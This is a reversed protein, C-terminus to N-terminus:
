EISDDGALRHNLLVTVFDTAFTHSIKLLERFLPHRGFKDSQSAVYHMIIEKCGTRPRTKYLSTVIGLIDQVRKDHLEFNVLTHYLKSMALKELKQFRRMRAFTIMEIHHNLIAAHSELPNNNPRSYHPPASLGDQLNSYHTKFLRWMYDRRATNILKLDGIQITDNDKLREALSSIGASPSPGVPDDSVLLKPEPADYTGTYVYQVFADFLPRTSPFWRIAGDRSYTLIGFDLGRVLGELTVM